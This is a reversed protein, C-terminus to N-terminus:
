EPVQRDPVKRGLAQAAEQQYRLATPFGDASLKEAEATQAGELKGELKAIAQDLKPSDWNNKRATLIAAWGRTPNSCLEDEMSHYLAIAGVLSAGSHQVYQAYWLAKPIDQLPPKAESYIRSSIEAIECIHDQERREFSKWTAEAMEAARPYNKEVGRGEIYFKALRVTFWDDGGYRRNEDEFVQAVASRDCYIKQKPFEWFRVLDRLTRLGEGSGREYSELIWDFGEVTKGNKILEKGYRAMGWTHGNLSSDRLFDMGRTINGAEVLSTGVHYSAAAFGRKALERLTIMGEAHRPGDLQDTARWTMAWPNGKKIAEDLLENEKNEDWRVGAGNAYCLALQYIGHHFGNKAAARAHNVQEGDDKVCGRGESYCWALGCHALADGKEAADSLLKFVRTEDYPRERTTMMRMALQAMARADGGDAKIELADFTMDGGNQWWMIEPPLLPADWQDAALCLTSVCILIAVYAPKM